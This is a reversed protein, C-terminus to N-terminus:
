PVTQKFVAPYDVAGRQGSWEDIRLWEYNTPGGRVLQTEVSVRM